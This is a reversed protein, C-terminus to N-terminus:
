VVNKEQKAPEQPRNLPLLRTKHRLRWSFDLAAVGASFQLVAVALLGCSVSHLRPVTLGATCAGRDV